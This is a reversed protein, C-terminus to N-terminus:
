EDNVTELLRGERREIRLDGTSFLAQDIRLKSKAGIGQAIGMIMAEQPKRIGFTHQKHGIRSAPTSVGAALM